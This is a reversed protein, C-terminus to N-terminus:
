LKNGICIVDAITVGQAFNCDPQGVALTGGLENGASIVDAITIAGNGNADGVLLLGVPTTSHSEYADFRSTSASFGGLGNPLGLRVSEVAGTASAYSGTPAVLTANANVWFTTTGASVYKVEVSHWNNITAAVTGLVTGSSGHFDLNAGDYSVKLLQNGPTDNDYVVFLDAQGSGTFGPRVYFRAIFTTHGSPSNDQVYGTNTAQLACLESYRTITPPSATTVAGVGTPTDWAGMSCAFGSAPLLLALCGLFVREMNKMM